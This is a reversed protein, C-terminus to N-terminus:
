LIQDIVRQFLTPASAIGFPLRLYRYLGQHTNVVLYKLSEPDLTLQNFAHTLDLKTFKQGGALTAFIDEPQPLLYKDVYMWYLISLSGTTGTSNSIVMRRSMPVTLLLLLGNVIASRRWFEM